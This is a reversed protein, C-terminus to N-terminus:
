ALEERYAFSVDFFGMVPGDEPKLNAIFSPFLKAAAVQTMCTIYSGPRHEPNDGYVHIWTGNKDKVAAFWVKM